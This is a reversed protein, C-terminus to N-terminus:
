TSNTIRKANSIFNNGKLLKTLIDAINENSSVYKITILGENVLDMIFHYKVRIHKARSHFHTTSNAIFKITSQNDIFVQIPKEFIPETEECLRTFWSIEKVLEILSYLEAEMTSIATAKQLKSKWLVPNNNVLLVNGSTSRGTTKDGGLDSDCFGKIVLVEHPTKRLNIGLTKTSALYRFVRKVIQWDTKRPDNM